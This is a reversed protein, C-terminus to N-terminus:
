LVCREFETPPGERQQASSLWHSGTALSHADESAILACRDRRLPSQFCFPPPLFFVCVSTEYLNEGLNLQGFANKRGLVPFPFSVDM